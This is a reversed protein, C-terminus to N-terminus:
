ESESKEVGSARSIRKKRMIPERTITCLRGRYANGDTGIINLGERLQCRVM